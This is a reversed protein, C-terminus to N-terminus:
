FGIGTHIVGTVNAKHQQVFIPFAAEVFWVADGIHVLGANILPIAGINVPGGIQTAVRLGGAVPGFNYVLGPDVVLGTSWSPKFTHQVITEFDFVLNESVKFGIGIPTDISVKDAITTTKSAITVLGTAVGIHGGVTKTFGTAPAVVPTPSAAMPPPAMPEPPPPPMAPPAPPAAVPPQPVAASPAAPIAEDAFAPVPAFASIILTAVVPSAILTM